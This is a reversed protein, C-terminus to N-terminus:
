RAHNSDISVEASAEETVGTSLPVSTLTATVGRPWARRASRGSGRGGPVGMWCCAVGAHTSLFGSVRGFVVLVVVLGVAHRVVGFWLTCCAGGAWGNRWGDVTLAVHAGVPLRGLPALSLIM